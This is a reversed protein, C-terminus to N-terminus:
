AELSKPLKTLFSNVREGTSFVKLSGDMNFFALLCSRRFDKFAVALKGASGEQLAADTAAKRKGIRSWEEGPTPGMLVLLFNGVEKWIGGFSGANALVLRLEDDAEWLRIDMMQWQRHQDVLSKLEVFLQDAIERLETFNRASEVNDTAAAAAQLVQKLSGLDLADALRGLELDIRAPIRRLIRRFSRVAEGPRRDGAPALSADAQRVAEEYEQVWSREDERERHLKSPFAEIVGRAHIGQSRFVDLANEFDRLADADEGLAIKEANEELAAFELQVHHLCDHLDKYIRIRVLKDQWSRLLEDEASILSAVPKPEDPPVTEKEFFEIYSPLNERILRLRPRRALAERLVAALLGEKRLATVLESVVQRFPDGDSVWEVYMDRGTAKEVVEPFSDEDYAFVILEILNERDYDM